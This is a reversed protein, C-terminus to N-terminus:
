FKGERLVLYKGKNNMFISTNIKIYFNERMTDIGTLKGHIIFKIIKIVYYKMVVSIPIRFLGIKMLSRATM